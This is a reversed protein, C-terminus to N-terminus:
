IKNFTVQGGAAYRDHKEPDYYQWSGEINAGSYEDDEGDYEDDIVYIGYREANEVAMQWVMEDLEEDTTDASVEVFEYSDMGCYGTHCTVFIKRTESM